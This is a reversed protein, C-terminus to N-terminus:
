LLGGGGEGGGGGGGVGQGQEGPAQPESAYKSFSVSARIPGGVKSWDDDVADAAVHRGNEKQDCARQFLYREGEERVREGREKASSNRPHNSFGVGLVVSMKSLFFFANPLKSRISICLRLRVLGKEKERARERENAAM